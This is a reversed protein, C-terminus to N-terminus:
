DSAGASGYRRGTASDREWNPATLMVINPRDAAARGKEHKPSSALATTIRLVGMVFHDGPEGAARRYRAESARNAAYHIGKPRVVHVIRTQNEEGVLAIFFRVMFGIGLVCAALLTFTTASAVANAQLM